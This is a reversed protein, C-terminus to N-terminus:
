KLVECINTGQCIRLNLAEVAKSNADVQIQLIESATVIHDQNIILGNQTIALKNIDKITNDFRENQKFQKEADLMASASTADVNIGYLTVLITILTILASILGM